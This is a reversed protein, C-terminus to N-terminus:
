RLAYSKKMQLSKYGVREMLCGGSKKGTVFITKISVVLLSPGHRHRTLQAVGAQAQCRRRRGIGAGIDKQQRAGGRGVLQPLLPWPAAASAVGILREDMPRRRQAEVRAVFQGESDLGAAAVLFALDEDDIGSASSSCDRLSIEKLTARM